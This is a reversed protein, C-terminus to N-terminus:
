DTLNEKKPYKGCSFEELCYGAKDCKCKMIEDVLTKWEESYEGLADLLDKMLERYEKYARICLRQEAMTMLTRANMRVAVTTSMGLPLLNAADEKKINYLDIMKQYTKQIEAMCKNYENRASMNKDIADPIYYEFDSENIYRTSAQTRTPAGGVHTYFERIVRASYGDLIFWVDAYELTRFHGSKLANFGRNYNKTQNSTDSGYCPGIMEGILTIPEEPTVDKIIVKAM